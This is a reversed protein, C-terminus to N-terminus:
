NKLADVIPKPDVDPRASLVEVKEWCWQEAQDTEASGEVRACLSTGRLWYIIRQPFDHQLNEFIVRDASLSKVPFATAPRGGPMALYVLRKEVMEVRLFEFFARGDSRVDRHVGLMVGGAPALWLEEMTVGDRISRWHGTMFDPFDAASASVAMLIMVAALTKM